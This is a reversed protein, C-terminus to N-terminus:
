VAGGSFHPLAHAAKSLAAFGAISRFVAIAFGLLWVCAATIIVWEDPGAQVMEQLNLLVASVIADAFLFYALMVLAFLLPIAWVRPRNAISPPFIKEMCVLAGYAFAFAIAFSFLMDFHWTIQMVAQYAHMRIFDALLGSQFPFTM